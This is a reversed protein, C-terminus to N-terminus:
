GAVTVLSGYTLYPWARAAATIPLEVCGLSQPSGYSGRPFYHVADGGDFYAVYEVPDAYSSGDPNTGRMIQFRYRLYVPFTGDETPAVPIGTNAASRLVVHGDHWITLMEPSGKSAVAYTYGARNIHGRGAARLLATWVSAGAVGNPKMGHQSQFAMVAGKLILNRRGPHWEGHLSAPYGHHWRFKGPPPSYAAAIQAALGAAASGTGAGTGTGTLGGTGGNLRANGLPSWSLPLYGLQALLESLRRTSWTRTRFSAVVPRALLSGAATRVGAQGAPIRLTVHSSPSFPVAPWFTLEAGARQWRGPVAPKLVPLPSGAALPVSFRVVVPDAGSIGRAGAPPSTSLVRLPGTSTAQGALAAGQVSAVAPRSGSLRHTLAYTGAAVTVAVVAAALGIVRAWPRRAAGNRRLSGRRRTAGHRGRRGYKRGFREM